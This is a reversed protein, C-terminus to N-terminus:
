KLRWSLKLKCEQYCSQCPVIIIIIIIIINIIIILIILIILIIIDKIITRSTFTCYTTLETNDFSLGYVSGGCLVIFSVCSCLSVLLFRFLLNGM